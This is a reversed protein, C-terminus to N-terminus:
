EGASAKAAVLTLRATEESSSPNQGTVLRGDSLAFPQFDPGSEYRGGLERLRSELLFPVAKELGAATEESNSFGAVRRGSVVPKGDTDKVNVLGAPGHCVAALVKGQAWAKSLLAALDGSRPLDWMTGHGGPLFIADYTESSVDTVKRSAAVSQMATQDALFREVSPENEGKPKLSAPDIPVKGGDISVIDVQAGADVFTYYPTALEEFWVGTPKGTDGLAAHSTLIILIKIATTM